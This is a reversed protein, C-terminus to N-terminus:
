ASISILMGILGNVRQLAMWSGLYQATKEPPLGYVANRIHSLKLLNQAM